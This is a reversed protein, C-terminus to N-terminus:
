MLGSFRSMLMVDDSVTDSELLSVRELFVSLRIQSTASCRASMSVAPGNVRSLLDCLM